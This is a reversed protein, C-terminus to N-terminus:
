STFHNIMVAIFNYAAHAIYVALFPNSRKKLSVIYLSAYLFGSIFAKIIYPISYHHAIGFLFASSLCALMFADKRKKLVFLIILEQALYTEVAPVILVAVFLEEWFGFFDDGAYANPFLIYSIFASILLNTFLAALVLTSNRKKELLELFKGYTYNVKGFM